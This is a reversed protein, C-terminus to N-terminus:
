ERLIKVEDLRVFMFGRAQLALLGRIVGAGAARNPQNIHAIIVDGNIASSIRSATTKASASAGFDANLSFGAVKHKTQAIITMADNTYLATAGRYFHTKPFGSLEIALAGGIVEIQVAKGTGAPKIGYPHKNGIIAPIHNKGHNEIQFLNANQLLIKTANPNSNLWRATVFITAKIKNKILGNLIRKDIGGSCADLTLAVQPTSGQAIIHMQPEFLTQAKASFAILFGLLTIIILRAMFGGFTM